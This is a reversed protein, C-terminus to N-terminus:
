SVLLEGPAPGAIMERVMDSRIVYGIDAKPDVRGCYLGLLFATFPGSGIAAGSTSRMQAGQPYYFVPAGSIGERTRSDILFRPLGQIDAELPTAVIGQVVVPVGAAGGNLRLPFGSVVVPDPVLVQIQHGRVALPSTDIVHPDVGSRLHFGVMDLMHRYTPHEVWQPEGDIVIPITKTRPEFTSSIYAIRLATPQRLSSDKFENTVPVRGIGVHRNTILVVGEVSQVFFGTGYGIPEDMCLVEIYAVGLQVPSFTIM